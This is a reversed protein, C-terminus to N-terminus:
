KELCGAADSIAGFGCKGTLWLQHGNSAQIAIVGYEDSHAYDVVVDEWRQRIIDYQILNGGFRTTMGNASIIAYHAGAHNWFRMKEKGIKPVAFVFAKSVICVYLDNTKCYQAPTIVDLLRVGNRSVGLVAKGDFINAYEAEEALADCPLFSS